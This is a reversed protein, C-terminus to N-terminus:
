LSGTSQKKLFHNISLYVHKIQPFGESKYITHNQIKFLVLISQLMVMLMM